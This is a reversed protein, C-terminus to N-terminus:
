RKRSTIRVTLNAVNIYILQGVTKIDAIIQDNVIRFPAPTFWCKVAPRPIFPHDTFV